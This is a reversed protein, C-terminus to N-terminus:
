SYLRFIVEDFEGHINNAKDIICNSTKTSIIQSNQPLRIENDYFSAFRLYYEGADEPTIGVSSHSVFITSTGNVIPLTVMNGYLIEVLTYEDGCRATSAGLGDRVFFGGGSLRSEDLPNKGNEDTINFLFQNESPLIELGMRTDNDGFVGYNIPLFGVTKIESISPNISIVQTIVLPLIKSNELKDKVEVIIKTTNGYNQSNSKSPFPNDVHIPTSNPPYMVVLISIIALGVGFSSILLILNKKM